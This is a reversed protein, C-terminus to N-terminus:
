RRNELRFRHTSGREGGQSSPSSPESATKTNKALVKAWKKAGSESLATNVVDDFIERPVVRGERLADLVLEARAQALAPDDVRANSAGRRQAYFRAIDNNSYGAAEGSTLETRAAEEEPTSKGTAQHIRGSKVAESFEPLTM